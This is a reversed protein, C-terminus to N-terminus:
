DNKRKRKEFTYQQQQQQQQQQMAGGVVNGSAQLGPPGKGRHKKRTRIKKLHKKKKAVRFDGVEVPGFSAMDVLKQIREELHRLICGFRPGPSSFVLFNSSIKTM